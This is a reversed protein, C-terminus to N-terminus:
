KGNHLINLLWNIQLIYKAFFKHFLRCKCTVMHTDQCILDPKSDASITSTIDPVPDSRKEHVM